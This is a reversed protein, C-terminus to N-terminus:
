ETVEEFVKFKNLAKRKDSEPVLTPKGEPKEIYKGILETLKKKGVLEELDGLGKLKMTDKPTFGAVM